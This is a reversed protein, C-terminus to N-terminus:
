STQVLFRIKRTSRAGHLTVGLFSETTEGLSNDGGMSLGLLLTEEDEEDEEDESM